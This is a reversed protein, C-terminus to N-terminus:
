VLKNKKLPLERIRKGTAAFIANCIAPAMPPVGPEGVGAPTENSAVFHVHTKLPAENIRAVPYNHFNSQQIKGDQATIEGMMAISAGFVSAGEFQARARDPNIIKGADVAIDVRPIRLQGKANVEVEVVAAVYTNFSWQTAIGYGHGPTSKKNAWGSKDAALQVVNRWRGTDLPFKDLKDSPGALHPGDEKMNMKRPEGMLDLLFEVRDRNAAAALEDTFSQVAFAHYINSVSRLWGIRVHNKVPGNEARHNAITYPVNVWGMEMEFGAAYDANPAFMNGISPFVSRQLWATPRGKEDTVAKMYMGAVSHYYDFHLDDERSWAVKVPKGIKKSLLAAEAVYDPKSKRGFGGGLLTVHCTVDEKKLGLTKSVIDQAAQPDQVAAHAVVKGDKFEAVAAPPEMPAHALLPVYYAAEHIKQNRSAARAFEADVDGTNRIPKCPKSATDLLQKKYAESEYSANAGLDWEIKLKKRAQMATWTNDAIVAVGGLPQFGYPLTLGDLTLVDSVGRVKRAESDNVSVLKGGFVPPREISAYVMGPMKADIGFKGRGTCLADLDIIPMEKGVYRYESPEKFKLEEKKPPLQKIGAAVLEGFQAKRGSPTHVVEHFKVHCESAPVNWKLAASNELMMRATAGAERFADHFNTISCSGDTNQDGYKSDGIAQEVRVRKWDADLEDAAIMPLVSRIGTGMESRHAIIVVTGNPEIGLYVSPHFPANDVDAAQLARDLVPVGIILAGASVFRELFGRRSVINITNM